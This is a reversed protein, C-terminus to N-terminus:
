GHVVGSQLGASPHGSHECHATRRGSALAREWYFKLYKFKGPILPTVAVSVGEEAWCQM